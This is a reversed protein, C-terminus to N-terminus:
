SHDTHFTSGAIRYQGPAIERNVVEYVEPHGVRVERNHHSMLPGFIEGAAAFQFPDLKQDRFVLVHHKAFDANIRKKVDEGAPRSLDLGRIEAGTGHSTMPSITYTSM